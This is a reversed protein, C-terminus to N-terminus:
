YIAYKTNLYSEVQLIQEITLVSNYCILEAFFSDSPEATGVWNGGGVSLGNFNIVDSTTLAVLETGNQRFLTDLSSSNHLATTLVANTNQTTGQFIWGNNEGGYFRDSYAPPTENTDFWTGILVNDNYTTIVRGTNNSKQKSVFFITFNTLSFTEQNLGEDNASTFEICPRGNIVSATFLPANQDIPTLTINNGSQDAWATVNSGSLTVGADAKLWLQPLFMNGANPIPIAYKNGLYAEVQQREPTTIARNYIIIEAIDCVCFFNDIEDLVVDSGISFAGTSNSGGSKNAPDATGILTGDLFFSIQSGSNITSAIRKENEGMPSSEIDAGSIYSIGYSNSFNPNETAYEGYSLGFEYGGSNTVGVIYRATPQEGRVTSASAKSVAIITIPTNYNNVFFNNTILNANGGFRLVPKGNIVSSVLTANGTRATANNGNGSQDAWTNVEYNGTATLTTTFTPLPADGGAISSDIIESKKITIIYTIADNQYDYLYFNLGSSEYGDEFYINNGGPTGDKYFTSTGGSTRTYTGNSDATGAGSVVIQSIFTEPATSVGADAKLWLQPLFMNNINPIQIAYKNGLYAEVQQRETGTVARNYMIVEAIQGNFLEGNPNNFSQNYGGIQLPGTTTEINGSTYGYTATQTGNTYIFSNTGNYTLELITPNGFTLDTNTDLDPRSGEVNVTFSSNGGGLRACNWYVANADLSSGNKMFTVENGTGDGTRKLVIFISTNLFDLSSSDAVLLLQTEGDFQIAPKSNSFSSVFTPEEGSNEVSANNGNGSQDAWATVNSGSLTVGADAKLWLSLGSKPIPSKSTIRTQPLSLGLGLKPM